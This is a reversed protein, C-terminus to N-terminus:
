KTDQIGLNYLFNCISNIAKDKVFIAQRAMGLEDDSFEIRPKRAQCLEDYLEKLHKDMIIVKKKGAM